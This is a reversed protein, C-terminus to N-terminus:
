RKKAFGKRSHKIIEDRVTEDGENELLLTQGSLPEQASVAALRAYHITHQYIASKARSLIRVLCRCCVSSMRHTALESASLQASM